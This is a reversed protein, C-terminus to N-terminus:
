FHWHIWEPPRYTVERGEIHIHQRLHNALDRLGATDLKEFVRAINRRNARSYNDRFTRLCKGSPFAVQRLYAILAEQEWVIRDQAALDLDRKARDYDADLKALRKRIDGLAEMDALPQRSFGVTLPLTKKRVHAVNYIRVQMSELRNERELDSVPPAGILDGMDLTQGPEKLLREIYQFGIPERRFQFRHEQDFARVIVMAPLRRYVFQANPPLNELPDANALRVNTDRVLDALVQLQDLLQTALSQQLNLSFSLYGPSSMVAGFCVWFLRGKWYELRENPPLEIQLKPKLRHWIAPRLQPLTNPLEWGSWADDEVWSAKAYGQPEITEWATYFVRKAAESIEETLPIPSDSCEQLVERCESELPHEDLAHLNELITHIAADAMASKLAQSM